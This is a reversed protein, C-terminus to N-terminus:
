IESEVKNEYRGRELLPMCILKGEELVFKWEYANIKKVKTTLIVYAAGYDFIFKDVM